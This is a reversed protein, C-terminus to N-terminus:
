RVPEAPQGPALPQNKEDLLPINYDRLIQTIKAEDRAIVGNLKRRFEVDGPRVGMAIHYDLRVRGDEPDLFALHLGLKDAANYYGAIPGWLLGIDVRGAAIDQLMRQGPHDVRTDVVLPYIAVQDLLGHAVILAAPPTNAILGFRRGTIRYDGVKTTPVHDAPRTVMMYGTHYYADTTAMGEAGPVTGIVVDCLHKMLTSRVFGQSDPYWTYSVRLGLEAALLGAIKNEFGEERNNSFPLNAPDACVRLETQSVLDPSQQAAAPLSFAVAAAMGAAARHWRMRRRSTSISPIAAGSRAM